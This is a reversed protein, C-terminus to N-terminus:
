LLYCMSIYQTKKRDFRAFSFVFYCKVNYRLSLSTSDMGKGKRKESEKEEYEKRENDKRIASEELPFVIALFNNSKGISIPTEQYKHRNKMAADFGQELLLEVYGMFNNKVAIHLLSGDWSYNCHYNFRRLQINLDDNSIHYLTNKLRYYEKMYFAICCVCVDRSLM